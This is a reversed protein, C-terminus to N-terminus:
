SNFNKITEKAFDVLLDALEPTAELPTTFHLDLTPFQHSLRSVLQAIADTINGSFLFYPFIGIKRLGLDALEHLRTELNPSVSWYATVAGLRDALDEVAQNAGLRRSGHSLLVWAEVPLAALRETILRYLGPHAGIHPAVEIRFDQGLIEQALSIEEPIDQMVHMGQLLFLPLIGIRTPGSIALNTAAGQLKRGFEAIQEHLATSSGELSAVEVVPQESTSVAGGNSYIARTPVFDGAFPYAKQLPLNAAKTGVLPELNAYQIRQSFFGALLEAAEQPRRDCSGHFVLLYAPPRQLVFNSLTSFM